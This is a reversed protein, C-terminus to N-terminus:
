WGRRARIRDRSRVDFAAATFTWDPREDRNLDVSYIRACEGKADPAARRVWLDWKGDADADEWSERAGFCSPIPLPHVGPRFPESWHFLYRTRGKEHAIELRTYRGFFRRATTTFPGERWTSWGFLWWGLAAAILIAPALFGTKRRM